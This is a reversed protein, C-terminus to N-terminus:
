GTTSLVLLGECILPTVKMKNWERGGKQRASEPYTVTSLVMLVFKRAQKKKKAM